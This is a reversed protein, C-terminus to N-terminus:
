FATWNYNVWKLKTRLIQVPYYYLDIKLVIL